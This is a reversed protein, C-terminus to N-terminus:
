GIAGANLTSSMAIAASIANPAAAAMANSPLRRPPKCAGHERDNGNGQEHEGAGRRAHKGM